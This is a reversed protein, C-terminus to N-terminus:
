CVQRSNLYSAVMNVEFLVTGTFNFGHVLQKKSKSNRWADCTMDENCFRDSFNHMTDCEKLRCGDDTQGASRGRYHAAPLSAEGTKTVNSPKAFNTHLLWIVSDQHHFHHITLQLISRILDRSCSQDATLVQHNLSASSFVLRTDDSIVGSLSSVSVTRHTMQHSEEWVLTHKQPIATLECVCVSECEPTRDKQLKFKPSPGCVWVESHTSNLTEDPSQILVLVSWCWM